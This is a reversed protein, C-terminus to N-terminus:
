LFNVAQYADSNIFKSTNRLTQGNNFLKSKQLYFILNFKTMTSKRIIENSIINKVLNPIIPFTKQTDFYYIGDCVNIFM